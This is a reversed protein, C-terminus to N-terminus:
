GGQLSLTMCRPATGQVDYDYVDIIYTGASFPHQSITETAGTDNGVAEFNGRHFVYVDPDTAAVSALNTPDAAGTVSLSLTASSNLTFRFFKHNGLKNASDSGNVVTSCVNVPADNPVITPYIPRVSVDGGDHTEGSGFDDTGNVSENTLLTGIAASQAANNARLSAIFPFISTLADTSKETSTMVNYIPTFGLDVTDGPENAPDFIDWLIEAVSGESFWGDPATDNEVNFNFNTSVGNRSDRYIPDNMAMGSFADGWGESFAVRLDLRDTPAHDGGQSDSRSFKDEFYHGMEHAIVHDDFEDTDGGGNAYDGLIYIGAPLAPCSPDAGTTYFSTGINGNDADTCGGTGTATKNKVSWYLDLAPLNQTPAAGLILTKVDYATDLIAFPAAARDTDIYTSGNWGTAAKLNRTVNSTGTNFASGDLAYLADSNTNNLARFNFTPATTSVMQAKARIFISRNAPVTVSYDGTANTNTSALVANTTSDLAEVVVGRAPSEVPTTMDLGNQGGKFSPREFTIKGTVTVETTGPNPNPNPTPNSSSGGGGCASLLSAVSLAAAVVLRSKISRTM